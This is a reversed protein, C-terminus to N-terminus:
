STPPGQWTAQPAQVHAQVQAQVQAQVPGPVQAQVQAQVQVPAPVALCRELARLRADHEERIEGSAQTTNRWEAYVFYLFITSFLVAAVLNRSEYEVVWRLVETYSFFKADGTGVLDRGAVNATLVFIGILLLALAALYGSARSARPLEVDAEASTLPRAYVKRRIVYLWPTFALLGVGLLLLANGAMQDVVVFVVVMFLSYFPAVSVLFFGPTSAAPFLSKIRGAGKLVGSPISLIVPILNGAFSLGAYMRLGLVADNWGDLTGYQQVYAQQVASMDILYNIPVLVTILPVAISVIWCVVLAKAPRRLDTWSRIVVIAGVPVLMLSIPQLYVLFMGLGTAVESDVQVADVFSLVASLLLVPFAVLLTSRRWVYLGHLSRDVGAADLQQEEAPTPHVTALNWHLARKVHLGIDPGAIPPPAYQQGSWGPQPPPWPQQPPPWPQQPPPQWQPPPQPQWAQQPPRNVPTQYPPQQPQSVTTERGAAPRGDAPGVGEDHSDDV